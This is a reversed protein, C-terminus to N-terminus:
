SMLSLRLYEFPNQSTSLCEKLMGADCPLGTEVKAKGGVEEGTGPFFLLVTQFLFLIKGLGMVAFVAM